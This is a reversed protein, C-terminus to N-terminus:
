AFTNILNSDLPVSVEAEIWQGDQADSVGSIDEGTSSTLFNQQREGSGSQADDGVNVDVLDLGQTSMAARLRDAQAELMDRVQPIASNFQISVGREEVVLKVGLSGLEPPDLRIQAEQRQESVMMVLRQGLAEGWNQQRTDTAPRSESLYESTTQQITRSFEGKDQAPAIRGADMTLLESHSTLETTTSAGLLDSRVTLSAGDQFARM